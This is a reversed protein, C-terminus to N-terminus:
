LIVKVILYFRVSIRGLEIVYGEEFDIIFLVDRTVM